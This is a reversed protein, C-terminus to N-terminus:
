INAHTTEKNSSDFNHGINIPTFVFGNEPNHSVTYFRVMFTRYFRGEKALRIATKHSPGHLAEAAARRDTWLCWSLARGKADVKGAFYKVLANSLAAEKHSADDLTHLLKKDDDTLDDRQESTFLVLFTAASALESDIHDLDQEFEQWDFGDLPNEMDLYGPKPIVSPELTATSM